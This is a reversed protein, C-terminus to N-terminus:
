RGLFEGVPRLPKIHDCLIKFAALIPVALIAGPIGWIWGWFIIGVFIVVTNLMLRRGLVIPTLIYAELLNLVFFAGPVLMARGLDDFTLLGVVALIVVMALAGLYPVFNLLGALVGWLIPNPLGLLYMAASVLGGLLANVVSVTFLYRSIDQQTQRAIEVARKKDELRPIVRVLKRLFLDGSALLFYVLVILVVVGALFERTQSFLTESFTSREVTVQRPPEANVAAVKQVEEAAKQVQEVPRKIDRLKYEVRRLSQPAREVWQAAPEALRVVGFGVTGVFGLLVLAAGLPEPVRLRKLTRVVPAFLFNLLTALVIPLIVARAFYLTYFLALVFLGTLALAPVAPPEAVLGGLRSTDGSDEPEAPEEPDEPETPEEPRSRERGPGEETM